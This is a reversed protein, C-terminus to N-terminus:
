TVEREDDTSRRLATVYWRVREDDGRNVYPGHVEIVRLRPCGRLLAVVPAVEAPLGMLRINM